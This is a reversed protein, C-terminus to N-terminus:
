KKWKRPDTLKKNNSRLNLLLLKKLKKKKLLYNIENIHKSNEIGIVIKDFFTRLSFALCAELSTIKKVELFKYYKKFINEYKKLHTPLSDFKKLFAGQLFVSRGYLKFKFKKKLILVKKELFSQNFINLPAQIVDPKYFKLLKYLEKVEYLSFGIKKIKKNKKLNEIFKVFVKSYKFFDDINHIYLLDIKKKKLKKLTLNFNYNLINYINKRVFIRSIKSSIFINKNYFIKGFNKEASGYSPALDFNRFGIKYCNLFTSNLQKIKKKSKFNIGYNNSYIATGIIIKKQYNM